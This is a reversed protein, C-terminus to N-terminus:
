VDYGGPGAVRPRLVHFGAAEYSAAIAEGDSVQRPVDLSREGEQSYLTALDAWGGTLDALRELNAAAPERLDANPELLLVSVGMGWTALYRAAVFGDPTAAFLEEAESPLDTM